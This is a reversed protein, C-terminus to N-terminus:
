DTSSCAHANRRRRRRGRRAAAHHPQREARRRRGEEDAHKMVCGKVGKGDEPKPPANTEAVLVDGNPLVYLWRPHQLGDRSRPSRLAAGRHRVREAPWGSAAAVDVTPILSREPQPLQPNAGITASIPSQTATGCAAVITAVAVAAMANRVNLTPEM